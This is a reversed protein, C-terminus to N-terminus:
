LLYKPIFLLIILLIIILLSVWSFIKERSEYEADTIKKKGFFKTVLNMINQLM